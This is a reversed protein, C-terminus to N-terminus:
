QNQLDAPAEGGAQPPEASQAPEAAQAPETPESSPETSGSEAPADTPAPAADPVAPTGAQAPGSPSGTWHVYTGDPRSFWIEQSVPIADAARKLEAAAAKTRRASFHDLVTATVGCITLVMALAFGMVAMEMRKDKFYLYLSLTFTIAMAILGMILIVKGIGDVSGEM